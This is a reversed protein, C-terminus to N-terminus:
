TIRIRKNSKPYNVNAYSLLLKRYMIIARERGESEGIYTYTGKPCTVIYDNRSPVYEVYFKKRLKRLLKAKM